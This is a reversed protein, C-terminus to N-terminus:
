FPQPSGQDGVFTEFPCSKLRVMLGNFHIPKLGQPTIKLAVPRDGDEAAQLAPSASPQTM